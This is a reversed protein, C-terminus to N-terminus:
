QQVGNVYTRTEKRGAPSRVVWRGHREGNVYPGEHILIGGFDEVWHGHKKGERYPGEFKGAHMGDFFSVAWRGHKKGDKFSGSENWSAGPSGSGSPPDKSWQLRGAGQALSGRCEGTWSFPKDPDYFDTWFYCGPHNSPEQWCAAGSPQQWCRNEAVEPPMQATGVTTGIVAAIFIYGIARQM